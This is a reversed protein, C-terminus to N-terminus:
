NYPKHVFLIRSLMGHDWVFYSIGRADTDEKIGGIVILLRSDSEFKILHGDPKALEDSDINTIVEVTRLNKPHYVDGSNADVIALSICGAGCGWFVITFHGAFNPGMKAGYRIATRFMRSRPHYHVNPEAVNGNFPELAPFQDFRPADKPLDSARITYEDFFGKDSARAWPLSMALLLILFVPSLVRNKVCIIPSLNLLYKEGACEGWM